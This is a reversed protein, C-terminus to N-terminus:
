SKYENIYWDVTRELGEAFHMKPKWGIFEEIKSANVSYKLDNGPRDKVFSILEKYSRYKESPLKKDMIECIKNVVAINNLETGGGINYKEGFKTHQYTLLEYIADCHDGVYLWDRINKGSGHIQITQDNLISSIIHPILKEKNQREGYNNSCSTVLTRMGYTRFFSRVVMEASAKSAAYPSNPAYNSKETFSDNSDTELTGYVEDTSIHFFLNDKSDPKIKNPSLMWNRYAAKLLQLTGNVNTNVFIDPNKISNDVHSEAAFNVIRKINYEKILFDVLSYNEISGHIFKYNKNNQFSRTNKLDGAYTLADLNILLNNDNKLHLDVFYSGIFGCGGTVLTNGFM